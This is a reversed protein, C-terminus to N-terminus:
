KASMVCSHRPGARLRLRAREQLRQLVGGGVHAPAGDHSQSRKGVAAGGGLKHLARKAVGSIDFL